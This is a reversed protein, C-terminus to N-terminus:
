VVSLDLVGRRERRRGGAECTAVEGGGAVSGLYAGDSGVNPNRRWEERSDRAEGGGDRERERERERL